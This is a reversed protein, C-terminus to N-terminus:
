TKQRTAGLSFIYKVFWTKASYLPRVRLEFKQVQWPNASACGIKQAKKTTKTLQLYSDNANLFGHLWLIFRATVFHVTCDCFSGVLKRYNHM